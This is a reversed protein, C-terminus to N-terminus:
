APQWTHAFEHGALWADEVRSRRLADGVHHLGPPLPPLQLGGESRAYRWRHGFGEVLADAPLGWVAEVAERLLGPIEAAPRELHTRSFAEGAHAV